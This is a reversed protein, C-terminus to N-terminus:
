KPAARPWRLMGTKADDSENSITALMRRVTATSRQRHKRRITMCTNAVNGTMEAVLVLGTVPARVVGTFFAAM